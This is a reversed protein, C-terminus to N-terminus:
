FKYTYNLKLIYVSQPQYVNFEKEIYYACSIQNHKNLDYDVGFVIRYIDFQSKGNELHYFLEGSVKPTWRKSLQYEATVKNRLYSNGENTTLLERYLYNDLGYQYQLKYKLVFPKLKKRLRLGFNCRNKHTYSGNPKAVVTFRYDFSFRIYKNINYFIGVEPFYSKISSANQDLRLQMSGVIGLHKNFEKKLTIENWLEFDKEQANSLSINTLFCFVLGLILLKRKDYSEIKLTTIM